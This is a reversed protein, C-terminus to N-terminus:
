IKDRLNKNPLVVALIIMVFLIVIAAVVILIITSMNVVFDSSTIGASNFNKTMVEKDKKLNNKVLDM